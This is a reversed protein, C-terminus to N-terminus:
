KQELAHFGDKLNDTQQQPIVNFYTSFYDLQEQNVAPLPINGTGWFFDVHTPTNITTKELQITNYEESYRSNKFPQVVYNLSFQSTVQHYENKTFHMNNVQFFLPIATLITSGILIVKITNKHILLLSGILLSFCLIFPFFFRYQPSSLLLLVMNLIAIGYIIWFASKNFHKKILLPMIVLLGIMILNFLGHPLPAFLWTKLRLFISAKEFAEASLHYGYPQMYNAFFTEVAPALSWTTKLSEFGQLPFLVNGSVILNKIVFLLLTLSSLFMVMVTTRRTFIFHRKFLIIPLLCFVLGTLKIFSIFLSLLVVAYFSKQTFSSYCLAFQHMLIISIVYIAVDPSPASIFQFFFVNWLPFLGIALNLKSKEKKTVFANLKFLAYGNGLLLALGSLDNFHDYLFSFNFASQLIHWGSTQGLFPHLNVLGNVFGYENLWKITQIYYSENDILFPPSACQAVILVAIIILFAKVFVTLEKIEVKIHHLYEVVQARSIYGLLLTIILLTFHFVGDIARPIAWFGALLTVGFFGFFLTIFTDQNKLGLLSNISVGIILSIVLIYLWSLLILLM